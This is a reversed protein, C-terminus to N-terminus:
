TSSQNGSTNAVMPKVCTPDKRPEWGLSHTASLQVTVHSGAFAIIIM